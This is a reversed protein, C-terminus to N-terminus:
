LLAPVGPLRRALADGQEVLEVLDGVQSAHAVVHQGPTDVSAARPRSWWQIQTLTSSAPRLTQTTGALSVDRRQAAKPNVALAFRSPGRNTHPSHPWLLWASMLAAWFM